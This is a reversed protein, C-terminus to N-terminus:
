IYGLKPLIKHDSQENATVYVRDKELSENRFWPEWGQIQAESRKLRGTPSWMWGGGFTM